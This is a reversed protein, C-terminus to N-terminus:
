LKSKKRVTRIEGNGVIFGLVSAHRKLFQCKKPEITLNADVIRKILRKFKLYHEDLSSAFVYIDDLYIELDTGQLGAMALAMLDNFTGSSGELGMALRKYRYRKGYPGYFTTYDASKPCMPIQFYGQRLYIATIVTANALHDIIDSQFLLPHCSGVTAENLARFDTVFRWRKENDPGAKKPVIWCNSCYNKALSPEIIDAKELKNIEEQLRLRM